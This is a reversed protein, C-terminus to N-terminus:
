ASIVQGAHCLRAAKRRSRGFLGCFTIFNLMKARTDKVQAQTRRVRTM